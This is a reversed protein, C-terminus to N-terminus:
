LLDKLARGPPDPDVAAGADLRDFTMDRLQEALQVRRATRRQCDDPARDCGLSALSKRTDDDTL